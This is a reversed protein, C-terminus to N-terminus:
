IDCVGKQMKSTIKKEFNTKLLNQIIAHGPSLPVTILPIGRSHSSANLLSFFLKLLQLWLIKVKLIKNTLFVRELCFWWQYHCNGKYKVRDRMPPPPLKVRVKKWHRDCGLPKVYTASVEQSQRDIRQCFIEPFFNLIKKPPVGMKARWLRDGVM